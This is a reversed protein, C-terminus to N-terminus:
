LSRAFGVSFYNTANNNCAPLHGAQMLQQSSCLFSAARGPSEKIKRKKKQATSSGQWMSFKRLRTLSLSLSLITAAPQLSFGPRSYPLLYYFWGPAPPAVYVSIGLCHKTNRTFVPTGIVSDRDSLAITSQEFTPTKGDAFISWSHITV